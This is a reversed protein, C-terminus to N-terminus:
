LSVKRFKTLNFANFILKKPPYITKTSYEVQLFQNIEKFYPKKFDTKLLTRWRDCTLYDEISLAVESPKKSEDILDSDDPLPNLIKPKAAIVAASKKSCASHFQRLHSFSREEFSNREIFLVNNFLKRIM